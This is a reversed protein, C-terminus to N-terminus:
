CFDEYCVSQWRNDNLVDSVGVTYNFVINYMSASAEQTSNKMTSDMGGFVDDDMEADEILM